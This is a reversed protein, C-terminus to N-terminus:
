RGPLIKDIRCELEGEALLVSVGDGRTIGETNKLIKKDHLKRTISYGRKLVAFPSLDGVREELLSLEMRRDKLTRTMTLRLSHAMFAMQRGLSAVRNMPSHLLLARSEAAIRKHNARLMLATMRHIRGNLEDLRLWLDTMRKRPDRIGKSLFILQQYFNNLHAKISSQLRGKIENLDEKISEKEVVLLEAAASPTSARFDAAMDSITVDIEHGVASVVPIRSERIALALEEQNFAWLDEM